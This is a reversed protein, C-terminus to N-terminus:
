NSLRCHRLARLRWSRTVAPVPVSGIRCSAMNSRRSGINPDARNRNPVQSARESLLSLIIVRISRNEQNVAVRKTECARHGCVECVVGPWGAAAPWAALETCGAAESCSAAPGTRLFSKSMRMVSGNMLWATWAVVPLLQSCAQRSSSRVQSFAPPTTQLATYMSQMFLHQDYHSVILRPASLREGLPVRLITRCGGSEIALNM